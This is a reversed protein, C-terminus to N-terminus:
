GAQAEGPYPGIVRQRLTGPAEQFCLVVVALASRRHDQTQRGCGSLAIRANHWASTSSLHSASAYECRRFYM